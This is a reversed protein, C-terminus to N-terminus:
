RTATSTPPASDQAGAAAFVSLTIALATLAVRAM